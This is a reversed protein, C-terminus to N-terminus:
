RLYYSLTLYMSLLMVHLERNSVYLADLQEKTKIGHIRCLRNFENNLEYLECESM